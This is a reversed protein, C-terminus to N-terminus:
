LESIIIAVIARVEDEVAALKTKVESNEVKLKANEEELRNWQRVLTGALLAFNAHVLRAPLRCARTPLRLSIGIGGARSRGTIQRLSLM